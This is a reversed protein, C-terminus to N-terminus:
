SELKHHQDLLWVSFDQFINNFYMSGINNNNVSPCQFMSTINEFETDIVNVGLRAAERNLWSNQLTVIKLEFFVALYLIGSNQNKYTINDYNFLIWSARIFLENIHEQSLFKDILTVNEHRLAINKLEDITKILNKDNNTLTYQIIFEKTELSEQKLFAFLIIPLECFGKNEKADGVYLIVSDQKKSVKPLMNKEMNGLLFYPHTEIKKKFLQSYQEALEFDSAFIKINPQDFLYRFGLLFCLEQYNTHRNQINRRHPSFM